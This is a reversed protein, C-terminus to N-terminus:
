DRMNYNRVKRAAEEQRKQMVRQKMELQSATGKHVAVPATTREQQMAAASGMVRLRESEAQRWEASHEPMQTRSRRTMPVAPQSSPLHHGSSIHSSQQQATPQQIQAPQQHQGGTDVELKAASLGKYHNLQEQLRYLDAHLASSLDMLEDREECLSMVEAQLVRVDGAMAPGSQSAAGLARLATIERQLLSVQDQLQLQTDMVSQSGDMNSATRKDSEELEILELEADALQRRMRTNNASLVAIQERLFALEEMLDPGAQSDAAKASLQRQLIAIHQQARELDAGLATCEDQLARLRENQAELQQSYQMKDGSPQMNAPRLPSQPAAPSTLSMQPLPSFMPLPSSVVSGAHDQVGGLVPTEPIRLRPLRRGAKEMELMRALQRYTELESEKLTLQQHLEQCRLQEMRLQVQLEEMGLALQEKQQQVTRLAQKESDKAETAQQLQLAQKKYKMAQGEAQRLAEKLQQVDHTAISLQVERDKGDQQLEQLQQEHSMTIVELKQHCNRTMTEWEAVFDDVRSELALIQKRYGMMREHLSAEASAQRDLVSQTRAQCAAIAEAHLREQRRLAVEYDDKLIQSAQSMAICEEKALTLKSKYEERLQQLARQADEKAHVLDTVAADKTHKTNELERKVATLEHEKALLAAKAHEAQERQQSEAHKTAEMERLMQNAKQECELATAELEHWRREYEAEKQRLAEDCNNLLVHQQRELEEEKAALQRLLGRKVEEFQEKQRRLAEDQIFRQAEVQPVHVSTHLHCHQLEADREDLLKLNYQFDDKLQALQNQVAALEADKEWIEQERQQLLLSLRQDTKVADAVDAGGLGGGGASDLGGAAAAAGDVEEHEAATM